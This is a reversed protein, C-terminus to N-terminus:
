TRTYSNLNKSLRVMVLNVSAQMFIAVCAKDVDQRGSIGEEPMFTTGAIGVLANSGTVFVSKSAIASTFSNHVLQQWQVVLESKCPYVDFVKAYM